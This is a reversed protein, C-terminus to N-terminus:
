CLVFVQWPELAIRRDAQRAWKGKTHQMSEAFSCARAAARHDYVFEDRDLDAM